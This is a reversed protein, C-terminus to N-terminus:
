EGGIVAEQRVKSGLETAQFDRVEVEPIRRPGLVGFVSTESIGLTPVTERKLHLVICIPM